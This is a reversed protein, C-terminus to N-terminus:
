VFIEESDTVYALERENLMTLFVEQSFSQIM